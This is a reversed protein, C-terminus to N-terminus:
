VAIQIKEAPPATTDKANPPTSMDVDEPLESWGACIQAPKRERDKPLPM